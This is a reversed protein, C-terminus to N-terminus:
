PGRLFMRLYERFYPFAPAQGSTAHVPVEVFPTKKELVQRQLAPTLYWGKVRLDKLLEDRAEKTMVFVTSFPDKFNRRGKEWLINLHTIELRNKKTNLSLFPSDKKDIRTGFAIKFDTGSLNQLLKTIDGLPTSLDASAAVIYPSEAALLARRLSEARGLRHPNKIVRVKEKALLDETGDTSPDLGFVIEYPIHFKGFYSSVNKLLDPIKTAENFIPICLTIQPSTEQTM